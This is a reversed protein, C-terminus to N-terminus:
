ALVHSFVVRGSLAGVGAHVCQTSTARALAEMVHESVADDRRSRAHHLAHHHEEVEEPVEYTDETAGPAQIPVCHSLFIHTVSKAYPM